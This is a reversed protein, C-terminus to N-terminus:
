KIAIGVPIEEDKPLCYKIKEAKSTKKLIDIKKPTFGSNALRAYFDLGYVRVHDYQGFYKNRERPNIIEKDEFTKKLNKDLPIQAILTGKNKIVRYLENLAKYDDEVHELVHNCILFDFHNSEFDIATIDVIANANRRKQIDGGVYGPENKLKRFLPWEPAIHLINKNGLELQNKKFFLAINRDRPRSECNPCRFAPHAHGKRATAFYGKYGCSSCECVDRERFFQKPDRVFVRLWVKCQILFDTKYDM